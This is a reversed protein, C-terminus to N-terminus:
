AEKSPKKLEEKLFEQVRKDNLKKLEDMLKLKEKITMGNRREVM